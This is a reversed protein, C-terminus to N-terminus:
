NCNIEDPSTDDVTCTKINLNYDSRITVSGDNTVYAFHTIIGLQYQGNAFGDVTYQTLEPDILIRGYDTYNHVGAAATASPFDLLAGSTKRWFLEYNAFIGSTAASWELSIANGLAKGSTLGPFQLSTPPEPKPQVCKWIGSPSESRILGATDWKFPYLTFCYPELALYNVGTVKINNNTLFNYSTHYVPSSATTIEIGADSDDLTRRMKLILGDFYGTSFNPPDFKINFSGLEALSQAMAVERVGNFSPMTPDTTITRAPSLIRQDPPCASTACLVLVVEYQTYPLLGTIPSSNTLFDVKKCFVTEADPALLPSLCLDPFSGTSAGGGVKSYYLRYHDFVGKAGTWSASVANLGQEGPALIVSFSDTLFNIDALNGSLTSITVYDTNLESRKKPNYVDDVSAEHIARMRVYFKTESPLGRAIYENINYDHNFSYIWRGEAPTYSVDMDNPTLKEADVLVVEYSKPDWEKKTLGGSTRAPTWRIKISDKGDQGPTNSASSIGSFDAVQNDFTTVSMMTETTSQIETKKDRVDIKIQYSSLRNLGTLTFKLLGRYDPTLVESPVSVPFPSSGVIIDYTYKGSGGDAPYFFVEVRSDSIAKAAVIGLFSMEEEAGEDTNSFPKNTEEVTGVCSVLALLCLLILVSFKEM